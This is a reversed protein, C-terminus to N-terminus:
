RPFSERKACTGRQRFEDCTASIQLRHTTVSFGLRQSIERELQKQSKKRDNKHVFNIVVQAKRVERSAAGASIVKGGDVFVSKVEPRAKLRQMIDDGVRM